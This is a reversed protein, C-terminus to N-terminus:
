DEMAHCYKGRSMTSLFATARREGGLVVVVVVVVIIAALGGTSLSYANGDSGSAGADSDIAPGGNAQPLPTAHSIATLCSILTLFALGFSATSLAM